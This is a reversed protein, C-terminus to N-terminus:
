PLSRVVVGTEVVVTVVVVTGVVVSVVGVVVSVVGVVVSVVGVVVSVVVSVVAEVVVVPPIVAAPPTVVAFRQTDEVEPPVHTRADPVPCAYPWATLQPVYWAAYVAAAGPSTMPTEQSPAAEQTYGDCVIVVFLADSVLGTVKM